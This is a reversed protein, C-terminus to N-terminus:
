SQEAVERDEWEGTQKDKVRRSTVVTFTAVPTGAKSFRVEPDRTLNGRLTVPTSM